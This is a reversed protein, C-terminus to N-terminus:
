GITVDGSKEINRTLLHIAGIKLKGAESVSTMEWQLKNTNYEFAYDYTEASTDASIYFFGEGGFDWDDEFTFCESHYECVLSWSGAQDSQFGIGFSGDLEQATAIIHCRSINWTSFIAEEAGSRLAYDVNADADTNVDPDFYYLNGDSCGVYFEGDFYSFSTPTLDKFIFQSCPLRGDEQVLFTHFVLTDIGSIKIFYQGAKPNFCGFSDETWSQEFYNNVPASRLAFRLDGYQEVGAISLLGYKSAVLGDNIISGMSSHHGYVHEFEKTITWEEMTDGANMKAMYPQEETGIIYINGFLNIIGGVAFSNADSDVAGIYGGGDTTSWDFSNLNTYWALGPNDSDGGTFMRYSEIIGFASKPPMGPQLSMIPQKTADLSWGGDYYYGTTGGSVTTCHVNVHNSGDGVIGGDHEISLYYAVNPSMETTIDTDTFRGTYDTAVGPIDTADAVLEISACDSDDSVKRLKVTVASADPTGTSSLTVTFDRPPITWGATWAQATFKYGVRDYTGDGLNITTDDSGASNDFQFASAGSGEDYAMRIHTGDFYKIYGGDLVIAKAAFPLVQPKGELYISSDTIDLIEQPDDSGDMYYLTYDSGSLGALLTYRTSVVLVSESYVVSSTPIATNTKLVLGPRTEIKGLRSYQWNTMSVFEDRELQNAAHVTNLGLAKQCYTIVKYEQESM